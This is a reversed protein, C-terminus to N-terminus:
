NRLETLSVWDGRAREYKWWYWGNAPRKLIAVAAASPSQYVRGDFRITGDHRVRARYTKGKYTCRLRASYLGYRALVPLENEAVHGHDNEDDDEAEKIGMLRFLEL